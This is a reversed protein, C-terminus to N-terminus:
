AAAAALDVRSGSLFVWSIKLRRPRRAAPVALVPRRLTFVVVAASDVETGAQRAPRFRWKRLAGVIAPTHPPLDHLVHLSTVQGDRDVVAYFVASGEAVSLPPYPPEVTVGPLAARDPLDRLFKEHHHVPEVPSRLFPSPFQFVIGLRAEVTHGDARAPLFSWTRVAALAKELFPNEGQVVRVEAIEGSPDILAELLVEGGFLAQSPYPPAVLSLPIPPSFRNAPEGPLERYGPTDSVSHWPIRKQRLLAIAYHIRVAAGPVPTLTQATTVYPITNRLWGGVLIGVVEASDGRLLPAGSQGPLVRQSFLLLESEGQARGLKTFQYDVVEGTSREELPAEFLQNLVLRSPRFTLALVNTARAPRETALPLYAVQYPGTFPNRAARLVAVDHEWDAAVVEASVLERRGTQQRVLVYPTGGARFAKLVHAATVLNGQENIFFANGFFAYHVGGASPFQDLPYVIPCLASALAEGAPRETPVASAASLLFVMGTLWRVVALATGVMGNGGKM